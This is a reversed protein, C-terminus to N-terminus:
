DASASHQTAGHEICSIKQNISEDGVAFYTHISECSRGPSGGDVAPSCQRRARSPPTFGAVGTLTFFQITFRVAYFYVLFCRSGDPFIALGDLNMSYGGPLIAFVDLMM